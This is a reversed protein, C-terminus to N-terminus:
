TSICAFSMAKEFHKYANVTAIEGGEVGTFEM